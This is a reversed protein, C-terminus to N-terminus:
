FGQKQYAEILAIPENLVDSLATIFGDPQVMKMAYGLAEADDPIREWTATPNQELIGEVLLAVLQEATKGRLFKVQQIMIHDFMQASLRGLEKVDADKRDGTGVIIGIKQPSDITALFDRIGAFGDPNHAFDVMVRCNKMSFINMRGPTQEASPLFTSLSKEIVEVSVGYVFAALTAALVNQVMFGVTGGFTVPISKLEAIRYNIDNQEAVIWGNQVYAMAGGLRRQAQLATNEANMSFWAVKCASEYGLKLTNENDANLIATGEPKVSKAVVGKVRTLQAITEIDSIGLHDDQVNTVVAIDCKDYGLGARVIGGRATELVAFGVKRHRLIMEASMPGTTDGKDIMEGNVYIGDSTTFGVANGANTMIHAILRTTTTKGNSGTVAIIPIRGHDPNQILSNLVSLEDNASLLIGWKGYGAQWPEDDHAQLVPIDHNVATKIIAQLGVAPKAKEHLVRIDDIAKQEDMEGSIVKLAAKAAYKGAEETGYEFVLNVIGEYITKHSDSYKVAIGAASQLSLAKHAVLLAAADADAQTKDNDGTFVQLRVQILRPVEVSWYNPGRLAQVSLIKM